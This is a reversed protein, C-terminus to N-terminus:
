GPPTSNQHTYNKDTRADDMCGMQVDHMVDSMADTWANDMGVMRVGYTADTKAGMWAGGM